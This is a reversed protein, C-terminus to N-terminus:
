RKVIKALECVVYDIDNEDNGLGLSFRIASRVREEDDFMAKLVHSPQLTGATCASGSSVAIGALDLNVLLSDVKKGHFSVNLLHPLSREIDGNVSHAIQEKEFGALLQEKLRTYIAVKQEMELIALEAAKAFGVIGAVNETGSRRKREQEGGFSQPELILEKKVYLFGIGKPGNIKHASTSMMDIRSALVDIPVSGFAQVADTHFTINKDALLQGIEDIPQLAGTENNGYMISVLITDDRLAERLSEIAIL